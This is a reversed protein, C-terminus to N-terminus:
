IGLHSSNLRTSKRDTPSRPPSFKCCDGVADRSPNIRSDWLLELSDANLARLIGATSADDLDEQQSRTVNPNGSAIASRRSVIPQAATPSPLCRLSRWDRHALSALIGAAACHWFLLGM